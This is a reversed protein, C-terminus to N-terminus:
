TIQKILEAMKRIFEDVKEQLEDIETGKVVHADGHLIRRHLLYIDRYLVAYKMKLMGPDVFLEKLLIPIHEPSPPLHKAAIIAAHASDVVSWYLGEVAGLIAAKSRALHLPARELLNYIAEPTSHIKGQILLAKLPNFFGGFDILSEGYRLINIVVPDGRMLDQWWTSVKVTNIHLEKKYPNAQIIKGLEERYWAILEQDWQISADDIVIIIDIDSGTTSTNKATSGFLIISKIIKNFQEYAKTAFDMAIEKGDIIKLTPYAIARKKKQTKKTRKMDKGRKM